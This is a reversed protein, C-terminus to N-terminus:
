APASLEEGLEEEDSVALLRPVDRLFARQNSLKNTRQVVLTRTSGDAVGIVMGNEIPEAAIQRRLLVEVGRNELLPGFAGVRTKVLFLKRNTLVAFFGNASAAGMLSANPDRDLAYAQHQVQEGEALLRRVQEHVFRDADTKLEPPGFSIPTNADDEKLFGLRLLLKRAGAYLVNLVLLVAIIIWLSYGILYERTAVTYPTLPTPLMGAAQFGALEEGTPMQIYAAEGDVKLVYGDDKMYVGALVFWTSTKRALCLAEDNPGKLPVDTLCTLEENHGISFRGM